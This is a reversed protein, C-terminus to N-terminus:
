CCTILCPLRSRQLIAIDHVGRLSIHHSHMSCFYTHQTTLIDLSTVERYLHAKSVMTPLTNGNISFQDQTTLILLTHHVSEPSAMRSSTMSRLPTHQWSIQLTSSHHHHYCLASTVMFIVTICTIVTGIHSATFVHESLTFITRTHIVMRGQEFTQHFLSLHSLYREITIM